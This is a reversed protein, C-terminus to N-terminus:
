EVILKKNERTIHIREFKNFTDIIDDITQKKDWTFYLRIHKSVEKRYVTECQHFIAIESLITSLEADEFVIPKMTTSDTPEAIQANITSPQTNAAAVTQEEQAAHSNSQVIRVAAYAIGSLMLVGIFIAAMKKLSYHITFLSYHTQAKPHVTEFRQWEEDKLGNAIKEKADAMAFADASLRMTEYLEHCEEDALLEQWQENSYQAPHEMM